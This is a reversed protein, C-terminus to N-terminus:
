NKPCTRHGYDHGTSKFLRNRKRSHVSFIHVKTDMWELGNILAVNYGQNILSCIMTRFAVKRSLDEEELQAKEANDEEHSSLAENFATPDAGDHCLMFYAGSSTLYEKFEHDQVSSFIHLEISPNSEPLHVQFHRILIARSLLYKHRNSAPTKRPICLAEHENFFVLHLNCKRQM